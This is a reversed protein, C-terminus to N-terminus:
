YNAPPLKIMTQGSVLVLGVEATIITMEAPLLGLLGSSNINNVLCSSESSMTM